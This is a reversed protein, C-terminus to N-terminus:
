PACILIRWLLACLPVSKMEGEKYICGSHHQRFSQASKPEPLSTPVEKPGSLGGKTGSLKHAIQKRFPVLNGKCHRGRFLHGIWRKMHRYFIASCSQPSIIKPRAFRKRGSAVIKLSPPTVKSHPDGKTTNRTGELQKEIAVTHAEYPTSRPPSAEPNKCKLDALM